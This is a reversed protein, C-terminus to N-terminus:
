SGFKYDFKHYVFLFQYGLITGLIIKKLTFKEIKMIKDDSDVKITIQNMLAWNEM